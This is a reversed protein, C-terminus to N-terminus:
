SLFQQAEGQRWGRPLQHPSPHTQLHSPHCTSVGRSPGTHFVCDKHSGPQGKQSHDQEQSPGRPCNNVCSLASGLHLKPFRQLWSRASFEGPLNKLILPVNSHPLGPTGASSLRVPMESGLAMLAAAEREPKPSFFRHEQHVGTAPPLCVPADPTERGVWLAGQLRVM